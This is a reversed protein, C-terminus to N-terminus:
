ALQSHSLGLLEAAMKQRYAFTAQLQPRVAFRDILAITAVFPLEYEVEDRVTTGLIPATTATENHSPNGKPNPAERVSHCHRWFRFPGKLQVDCFGENWRFQEIRALWSGRFPAFPFPRATITLETGDGAAVGDFPPLGAPRPPPPQFAVADIRARQWRPMLPPLNAPNSFFAFVQELPLPLWQETEFRRRM